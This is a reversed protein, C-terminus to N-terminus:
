GASMSAKKILSIYEEGLPALAKLVTEKADEFTWKDDKESIVPVYLDYMHLKDLGLLKKRLAVYKYMHEMNDHVASILNKYVSTPVETSHLAAELTNEYKRARAGFILSKVQSNLVAATTNSFKGWAAYVNEFASKRLARDSSQMLSIYSGATLQHARGEFDVADEFKMDANAFMNYINEASGTVEGSLSLIREEEESLIHGRFVRLKSLYRRYKELEPKIEFMKEFDEDSIALIEPAEFSLASQLSVLDTMIKGCMEQYKAVATDEDSKRQAYHMLDSVMVELRNTM